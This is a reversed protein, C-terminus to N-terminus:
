ATRMRPLIPGHDDKTRVGGCSGCGDPDRTRQSEREAPQGRGPDDGGVSVDNRRRDQRTHQEGPREVRRDDHRERQGGKAEAPSDGPHIAGM